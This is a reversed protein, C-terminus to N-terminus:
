MPKFIKLQITDAAENSLGVSGQMISDVTFNNIKDGEVVKIIKEKSKGDKAALSIVAQRHDETTFIGQVRIVQDKTILENLPGLGSDDQSSEKSNEPLKVGFINAYEDKPKVVPRKVESFDYNLVNSKNREKSGIKTNLSLVKFAFILVLLLNFLLLYKKAM